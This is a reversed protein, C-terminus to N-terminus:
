IVAFSLRLLYTVEDKRGHLDSLRLPRAGKKEEKPKARIMWGLPQRGSLQGSCALNVPPFSAVDNLKSTQKAQMARMAQMAQVAQVVPMARVAQMACALIVHLVPHLCPM